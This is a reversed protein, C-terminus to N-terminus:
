QDEIKRKLPELIYMPLDNWWIMGAKSLQAHPLFILAENVKSEKPVAPIFWGIQNGEGDSVQSTWNKPHCKKQDDEACKRCHLDDKTCHRWLKVGKKLCVLCKYQEPPPEQYSITGNDNVKAETKLSDMGVYKHFLDEKKEAEKNKQKEKIKEKLAEIKKNHSASSEVKEKVDEFLTKIRKKIEM